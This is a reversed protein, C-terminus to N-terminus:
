ERRHHLRRVGEGGRREEMQSRRQREQCRGDGERAPEAEVPGGSHRRWAMVAAALHAEAVPWILHAGRGKM